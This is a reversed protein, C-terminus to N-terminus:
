ETYKTYVRYAGQLLVGLMLVIGGATSGDLWQLLIFFSGLMFEIFILILGVDHKAVRDQASRWQQIFRLKRELSEVRENTEEVSSSVDSLKGKIEDLQRRVFPDIANVEEGPPGLAAGPVASELAERLGDYDRDVM